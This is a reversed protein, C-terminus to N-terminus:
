ELSQGVCTKKSMVYKNSVRVLTSHCYPCIGSSSMVVDAGCNTCKVSETDNVTSRIFSLEYEINLKKSDSGRVTKGTNENIVYDFCKVHMYVKIEIVDGESSAGIIKVDELSIDKMINKQKKLNLADLQSSYMNYLEDTTLNRITDTDFNMWAIQINKYIEFAELMFQEPILTPDIKNIEAADLSETTYYKISEKKSKQSAIEFYVIIFITVLFLCIITSDTGSGSGSSDWDSDYDDSGWDSDYGGSSWSSGSDYSSDWGSDVSVNLHKLFAFVSAIVIVTVLLFKTIKKVKSNM